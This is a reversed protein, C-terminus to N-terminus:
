VNEDSSSEPSSSKSRPSVGLTEFFRDTAETVLENPIQFRSNKPILKKPKGFIGLLKRNKHMWEEPSGGIKNSCEKAFEQFSKTDETQRVFPYSVLYKCQTPSIDDNLM